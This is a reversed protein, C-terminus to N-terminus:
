KKKAEYKAYLDPMHKAILDRMEEDSM